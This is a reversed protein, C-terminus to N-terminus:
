LYEQEADNTDDVDDVENDKDIVIGVTRNVFPPIEHTALCSSMLPEM